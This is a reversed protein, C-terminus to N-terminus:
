EQVDGAAELCLPLQEPERFRTDGDPEVLAVRYGAETLNRVYGDVAFRAFGAMPIRTGDGVKRSCLVVDCVDSVLKADDDFAEYFDGLLMLVIADPYKKKLWLWNQRILLSKTRENV